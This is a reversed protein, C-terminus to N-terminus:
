ALLEFTPAHEDQRPRPHRRHPAQRDDRSGEQRRDDPNVTLDDLRLGAAELQQRLSQQHQLVWDQVQPSDARVVATVAGHEVRLSVTVTGLADPRLHIRAEGLGDKWQMKLSSVIQAAVQEGAVPAHPAVPAAPAPAAPRDAAMTVPALPAVGTAASGDADSSRAGAPASLHLAGRTTGDTTQAAPAAPLAGTEIPLAGEGEAELFRASQADASERAADTVGQLDHGSAAAQPVRAPDIRRAAQAGVPVLAEAAAPIGTGDGDQPPVPPEPESAPAVPDHGTVGTTSTRPPPATVMFAPTGAVTPLEGDETAATSVADVPITAGEGSPAAVLQTEPVLNVGAPPVLASATSGGTSEGAAILAPAGDATPEQGTPDPGALPRAVAVHELAILLWPTAPPSAPASEDATPVLPTDGQGDREQTRPSADRATSTEPAAQEQGAVDKRAAALAHAFAHDDRGPAVAVRSRPSGAAAHAAAPMAASFPVLNM